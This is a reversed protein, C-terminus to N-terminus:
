DVDDFLLAHDLVAGRRAFLEEFAEVGEFFFMGVYPFDPPKPKHYRYFKLLGLSEQLLRRPLREVRGVVRQERLHYDGGEHVVVSDYRLHRAVLHVGYLNERGECDRVPLNVPEYGSEVFHEGIGGVRRARQPFEPLPEDRRARGVPRLFSKRDPTKRCSRASPLDRLRLRATM